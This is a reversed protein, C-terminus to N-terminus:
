PLMPCPALATARNFNCSGNENAAWHNGNVLCGKGLKKRALKARERASINPKGMSGERTAFDHCHM